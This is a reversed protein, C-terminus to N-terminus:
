PKEPPPPPVYEEIANRGEDFAEEVTSDSYPCPEGMGCVYYDGSPLQVMTRGDGLSSVQHNESPGIPYIGSPTHSPAWSPDEDPYNYGPPPYPSSGYSAGYKDEHEARAAAAAETEDNSYGYYQVDPYDSVPQPQLAVIYEIDSSYNDGEPELACIDVGAGENVRVRIMGDPADTNAVIVQDGLIPGVEEVEYSTACSGTAVTFTRPMQGNADVTKAWPIGVSPDYGGGPIVTEAGIAVATGDLEFGQHTEDFQAVVTEMHNAYSADEATIIAAPIGIPIGLGIGIILLPPGVFGLFDGAGRKVRRLPSNRKRREEQQKREREANAGANEISALVIDFGVPSVPKVTSMLMLPSAEFHEYRLIMIRKEMDGNKIIFLTPDESKQKGDLAMAVAFKATHGRRDIEAAPSVLYKAEGKIVKVLCKPYKTMIEHAMDWLSPTAEPEKECVLQDLTLEGDEESLFDTNKYDSM